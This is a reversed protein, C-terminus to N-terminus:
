TFLNKYANKQVQLYDNWYEQARKIEELIEKNAPMYLQATKLDRIAEDFNKLSLEAQGRRYLAKANRADNKLILDCSSKANAYHKLKLESAALNLLVKEQLKELGIERLHESFVKNTVLEFSKRIKDQVFDYYRLAKKYKRSSEIFQEKEFYYNGASKIKAIIQKM